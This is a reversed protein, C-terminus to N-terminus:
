ELLNVKVRYNQGSASKLTVILIENNPLVANSLDGDFKTNLISQGLSNYVEVSEFESAPIMVIQNKIQLLKFQKFDSDAIGTTSCISSYHNISDRVELFTNHFSTGPCETYGSQCGDRHGCVNALMADPLYAKTPGIGHLTEGYPNIDGKAAKWGALMYLSKLAARTPLVDTFTGIMCIGMTNENKNCMHAGQVEDQVTLGQPDRGKFIVGDPSILYNYGIDDWGNTQTHINYVGRILSTYDNLIMNADASHHIVIHTTTSGSRIGIPNSLGARWTSQPVSSPENCLSQASVNTFALCIAFLYVLQSISKM